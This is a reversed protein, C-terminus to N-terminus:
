RRSLVLGSTPVGAGATVVVNRAGPAQGGLGIGGDRVFDKHAPDRAREASVVVVAVGGDSEM